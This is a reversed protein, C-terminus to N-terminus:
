NVLRQYTARANKLAFPMTTYCYIGRDTFFATKEQDEESMGIQYYGKFADLLFLIEYGVASDVLSDIKPLPYYDKPCTKNLDTFDMCMRWGGVDKKVRVPNSLLTLYQM